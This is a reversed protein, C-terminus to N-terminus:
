NNHTDIIKWLLPPTLYLPKTIKILLSLHHIFLNMKIKVIKIKLLHTIKNKLDTPYILKKLHIKFAEIFLTNKTLNCISKIIFFNTKSKKMINKIKTPFHKFKKCNTQMKIKKSQIKM